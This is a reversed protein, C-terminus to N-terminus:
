IGKVETQTTADTSTFPDDVAGPTGMANSEGRTEPDVADNAPDYNPDTVYPDVTDSHFPLPTAEIQGLESKADLEPEIVSGIGVNATKDEIADTVGTPKWVGKYATISAVLSIVLTNIILTLTVEGLGPNVALAIVATLAVAAMNVLAKVSDAATRKTVLSVLLPIFLSVLAAIAATDFQVSAPM